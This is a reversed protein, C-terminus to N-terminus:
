SLVEALVDDVTSVLVVAPGQLSSPVDTANDLPVLVRNLGAQGAGFLKEPIGGVPKVRGSLSLEGTLATDLRVATGTLASYAAVFIAVGASPGDIRGGGVVNVHIDYQSLDRGTVRRLCAEANFVSDKAMSGATDNFHWRGRGPQQAPFVAAEIELVLGHYGAVALGFVRGPEPERTIAPKVPSLRSRSVVRKMTLADIRTPKEGAQLYATSYADVVLTVARRGELTYQSIIRSADEDMTLGLKASAERVIREIDEPM